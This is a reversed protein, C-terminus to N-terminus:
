HTTVFAVARAEIDAIKSILDAVQQPDTAAALKNATMTSHAKFSALTRAHEHAPPTAATRTTTTM